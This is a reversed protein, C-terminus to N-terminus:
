RVVAVRLIRTRAGDRLVILYVGSPAPEGDARRLDWAADSSPDVRFRRILAGTVDRVEGHAEGTLGGIRLPGSSAGLPNPFAFAGDDFAPAGEDSPRVQSIGNVTGVWLVRRSEDWALARVDDSALGDAVTFRELAGTAHDLRILGAASGIWVVGRPDHALSTVAGGGTLANIADKRPIDVLGNRLPAVGSETGVYVVSDSLVALSTTRLDPFNVEFHAWDDDDHVATGRGDWRDVGTSKLAFWGRGSPDFAIARLENEGLGGATNAPTLSDLLAASTEDFEYIGNGFEVGGGYVRGPPGLGFTYLDTMAPLDWTDTAPDWRDTRPPDAGGACCHGLWLRGNRDSLLGFTAASQLNGGTNVSTLASWVTGDYHVVVGGNGPSSANGMVFWAGRADALAREIGPPLSGPGDLLPGESRYAAWTDSGADYRALGTEAGVWLAGDPAIAFAQTKGTPLGAGTASWIGAVRRYVVGSSSTGSFVTGGLEGLALCQGFHGAGVAGLAGGAYARPGAPTGVWLTDGSALLANAATALLDGRAVWAGAAFTSLGSGTACWVTDRLSAIARIDDSILGGATSTSTDSRRLAIQGNAPNETFLAVGGSTGVWISDGTRYLAQVRASPLGDFTTLTRPFTGDPRLRALGADVTGIWLLGAPSSVACLVQNSPLGAASRTVKSFPGTPMDALVVGGTTAAALRGNWAVLGRTDNSNLHNTTFIRTKAAAKGLGLPSLAVVATTALTALSAVMALRRRM